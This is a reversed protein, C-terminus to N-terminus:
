SSLFISLSLYESTYKKPRFFSSAFCSFSLIPIPFDLLFYLVPSVVVVGTFTSDLVACVLFLTPEEAPVLVFCTDILSSFCHGLSLGHGAIAATLPSIIAVTDCIRRPGRSGHGTCPLSGHWPGLQMTAEDPDSCAGTLTVVMVLGRRPTNSSTIRLIEPAGNAFFSSMSSHVGGGERGGDHKCGAQENGEGGIGQRGDFHLIITQRGEGHLGLPHLFGHPSGHRDTGHLGLGQLGHAGGRHQLGQLGQGGGRFIKLRGQGGGHQLRHLDGHLGHGGVGHLKQLKHADGGHLGLLGQRGQRGDGQLGGRQRGGGQLGQLRHRDGEGRLGQLRQLGHGVVGHSRQLGPPATPEAGHPPGQTGQGGASHAGQGGDGHKGSHQLLGHLEGHLLEGQKRGHGITQLFILFHLLEGLILARRFRIDGHQLREFFQGTTRHRLTGPGQKPQQRTGGHGGRLHQEM